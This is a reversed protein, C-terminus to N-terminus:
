VITVTSHFHPRLAITFFYCQYYDTGLVIATLSIKVYPLESIALGANNDPGVNSTLFVNNILSVNNALGVNSILFVNNILSVSNALGANNILFVNNIPSANNIPLATITTQHAAMFSMPLELSIKRMMGNM